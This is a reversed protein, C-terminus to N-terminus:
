HGLRLTKPIEFLKKRRRRPRELKQEPLRSTQIEIERKEAPPGFLVEDAAIPPEEAPKVLAMSIVSPQGSDIQVHEVKIPPSKGQAGESIGMQGITAAIRETMVFNARDVTM